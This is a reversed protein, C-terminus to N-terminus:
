KSSTGVSDFMIGVLVYRGGLDLENSDLNVTGSKKFGDVKNIEVGIETYLFVKNFGLGFSAGYIGYPTAYWDNTENKALESEGTDNKFKVLTNSGGIGVVIDLRYFSSRSLLMRGLFLYTEQTGNVLNESSSASIQDVDGFTRKTFRLGGSFYNRWPFTIEAGMHNTKEIKNFNANEIENNFKDSSIHTNGLFLRAQIPFERANTTNATLILFIMKMLINM